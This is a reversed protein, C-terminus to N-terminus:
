KKEAPTGPDKAEPDSSVADKFTRIAKGLGAGLEPLRRAGFLIVVILLPLSM